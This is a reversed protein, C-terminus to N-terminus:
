VILCKERMSKLELLWNRRGPGAPQRDRADWLAYMTQVATRIYGWPCIWPNREWIAEMRGACWARQAPDDTQAGVMFTPWITGKLHVHHLPVAAMHALAEEVLMDVSEPFPAAEPVALLIYMCATARHALAISVRANLDDEACLGHISYVWGLVDFSQTQHLLALAAQVRADGPPTVNCCLRSAALLVQLIKPPCCHYSYTEARKLISSFNAMDQEAWIPPAVGSIAAGLVRYTLCDAAIADVCSMLSRDLEQAPNHLSSMLSSAAEIHVEWGGKGSDILDLNVLFVTAALVMPQNAPTMTEIASRILRIAKDKAVLADILEPSTRSSYPSRTRWAALHMAGMAVMVAEIFDYKPALLIMARFPNGDQQDFSVLEKCVATAFHQIYLRARPGLTALMPDLLAPPPSFAFEDVTSRPSGPLSIAARPTSPPITSPSRLTLQGVLKGRVAPANAWRLLTGYGLCDEGVTACKRCSPRSRDCRLRRRRCNHCAKSRPPAPPPAPTPAPPTTTPTPPATTPATTSPNSETTPRGAFAGDPRPM